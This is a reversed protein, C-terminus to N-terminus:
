GVLIRGRLDPLAFADGGGGYTTGILGFLAPYQAVALLSGDCLAWGAPVQSGAYAIVQGLWGAFQPFAGGGGSPAAGGINILYNLGLAPVPAGVRGGLAVPPLGPAAGAGIAAFGDLDPLNFAVANGGFTQGIVHYLPVNASIPLASGDALSWGAPAYNGGFAVVMGIAPAGSTAETAILYTLTLSQQGTIGLQRGGVPTRGTLDPLALHIGDGGYTLGFVAMLLQNTSVSLMRGDAAPAEFAGERGAFSQIMGLTFGAAPIGGAHPPFEGAVGVLQAMALVGEVPPSPPPAPPTPGPRDLDPPVPVSTADRGAPGAANSGFIRFLRRLADILRALM